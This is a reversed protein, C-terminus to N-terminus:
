VYSMSSSWHQTFAKMDGFDNTQFNCVQCSTEFSHYYSHNPCYLTINHPLYNGHKQEAFNRIQIQFYVELDLVIKLHNIFNIIQRYNVFVICQLNYVHMDCTRDSCLKCAGLASIKNTKILTNYYQLVILTNYVLMNSCLM